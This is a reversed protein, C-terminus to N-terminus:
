PAGVPAPPQPLPMWHTAGRINTHQTSVLYWEGPNGWAASVIAPVFKDISAQYQGKPVYLLVDTRDMPATEIPQWSRSDDWIAAMEAYFQKADAM